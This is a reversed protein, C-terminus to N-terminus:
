ISRARKNDGSAITSVQWDRRVEHTGADTDDSLHQLWVHHWRGCTVTQEPPVNKELSAPTFVHTLNPFIRLRVQKDGGAILAQAPEIANHALVLADREGNLILVRM